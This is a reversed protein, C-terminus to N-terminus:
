HFNAITFLNMFDHVRSEFDNVGGVGLSLPEVPSEVLAFDRFLLMELSRGFKPLPFGGGHSVCVEFDLFDSLLVCFGNGIPVGEVPGLKVFSVRLQELEAISHARLLKLLEAVFMAFIRYHEFKQGIVGLTM